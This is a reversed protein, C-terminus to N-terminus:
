AWVYFASKDVSRWWISFDAPIYTEQEPGENDTTAKFITEFTAEHSALIDVVDAYKKEDKFQIPLPFVESKSSM